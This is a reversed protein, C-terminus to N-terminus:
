GPPLQCHVQATKKKFGFRDTSTYVVTEQIAVTSEIQLNHATRLQHLVKTCDESNPAFLFGAVMFLVMIM